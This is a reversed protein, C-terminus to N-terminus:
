FAIVFWIGSGGSSYSLISPSGSPLKHHSQAKNGPLSTVVEDGFGACLQACLPSEIVM